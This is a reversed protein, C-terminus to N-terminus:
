GLAALIDSLDAQDNAAVPAAGAVPVDISGPDDCSPILWRSLTAVLMQRDLPKAMYDNMGLALFAERSGPTAEATCAIVPMDAWAEKSTRIRRICERGDMVPMHADLLVLDFPERELLDLADRGNEAEFLKLQLGALLLKVVKRNTANDDVILIRAGALGPSRDGAPVAAAAPTRVADPSAAEVDVSLTFTSGEGPSSEVEVGGGMLAALRATIALGLGAGDHARATSGDAQMFLQFLQPLVNAPIGAGTDRVVISVRRRTGALPPAAALSVEVSGASTFKIANSVLNSVCQRLRIPDFRASTAIQPDISFALLLGKHQALPRYRDEVQRLVAGLDSDVPALALQSAEMASLDLLDGLLGGLNDASVVITKLKDQDDPLLPAQALAEAMGLIGNLPTRIEHSMSALFQSKSINAANAADRAATLAVLSAELERQHLALAQNAKLNRAYFLFAVM